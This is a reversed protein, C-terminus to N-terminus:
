DEKQTYVLLMECRLIPQKLYKVILLIRTLAAAGFNFAPEPNRTYSYSDM